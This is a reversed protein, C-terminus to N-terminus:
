FIGNYAKSQFEKGAVFSDSVFNLNESKVVDIGVFSCLIDEGMIGEYERIIQKAGSLHGENGVFLIGCWIKKNENWKKLNPMMENELLGYKQLVTIRREADARFIDVHSLIYKMHNIHSRLNDCNENDVKLEVFGVGDDNLIMLDVRPSKTDASNDFLCENYWTKNRYEMESIYVHGERKTRTWGFHDRASYQMEM